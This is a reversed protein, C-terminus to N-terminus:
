LLPIYVCLFPSLSPPLSILCFCVCLSLCICLCVSLCLYFCLSLCYSVYLYLSLSSIGCLAWVKKGVQCYWHSYFIGHQLCPLNDIGTHNSPEMGCIPSTLTPMADKSLICSPYPLMWLSHAYDCLVCTTMPWPEVTGINGLDPKQVEGLGGQRM